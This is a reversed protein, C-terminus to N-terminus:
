LQGYKSYGLQHCVVSADIHDWTEDCISNWTQNICLEVRGYNRFYSGSGSVLRVTGTECKAIIYLYFCENYCGSTCNRMCAGECRLGVDQSHTCSSEIFPNSPCELLNLETGTCGMDRLFIPNVGQGFQYASSYRVAGVILM